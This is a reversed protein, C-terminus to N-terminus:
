WLQHGNEGWADDIEKETFPRTGWVWLFRLLSGVLCCLFIFFPWYGLAENIQNLQAFVDM